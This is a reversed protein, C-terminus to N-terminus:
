LQSRDAWEAYSLPAENLAQRIQRWNPLYRDLLGTFRDDHHRVILHAMEHVLIYELCEPSKRALEVNLRVNGSNTNCSGWKTKMRQVFVKKVKVGPIPEWKAILPPLADKLLGRYWADVIAQRKDEVTGCRVRLVIKRHRLEVAAPADLEMVQLLYRKGWVYHSERDLYERPTDREQKLFKERQRKIWDLKSIAFVRITDLSMRAPASIRVRGTPPYVSLHVNKIDRFLVDVAIEGLLLRKAM